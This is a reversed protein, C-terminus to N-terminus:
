ANGGQVTLVLLRNTELKYSALTRKPDLQEAGLLLTYKSDNEVFAFVSRVDTIVQEVKTSIPYHPRMKADAPETM